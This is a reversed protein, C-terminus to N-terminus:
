LFPDTDLDSATEFRNSSDCLPIFTQSVLIIRLLATWVFLLSFTARVLLNYNRSQEAECVCRGMVRVAQEFYPGNATEGSLMVCDSGDFVANAVDSCEARTPRPNNVMSELMRHPFLLSLSINHTLKTWQSIKPSHISALNLLFFFFRVSYGYHCARVTSSLVFTLKTFTALHVFIPM